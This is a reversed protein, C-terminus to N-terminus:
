NKTICYYCIEFVTIQVLDNRVVDVLRRGDSKRNEKLSFIVTDLNDQLQAGKMLKLPYTLQKMVTKMTAQPSILYHKVIKPASEEIGVKYTM